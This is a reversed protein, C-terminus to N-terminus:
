KLKYVIKDYKNISKNNKRIGKCIFRKGLLISRTYKNALEPNYNIM